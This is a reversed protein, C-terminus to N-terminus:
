AAPSTTYVLSWTGSSNREWIKGSQSSFHYTNGNSSTVQWKVFEDVTSGSDKTLKQEAKIVAPESHVDVGVMRYLSDAVGSWKSDALGGNNWNTILVPKSTAM